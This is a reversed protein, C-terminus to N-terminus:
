STICPTSPLRQHFASTVTFNSSSSKFSKILAVRPGRRGFEHSADLDWGRIKHRVQNEDEAPILLNYLKQSGPIAWLLPPLRPEIRYDVADAVLNVLRGLDLVCGLATRHMYDRARGEHRVWLRHRGGDDAPEEIVDRAEDYVTNRWETGAFSVAAAIKLSRVVPDATLCLTAKEPGADGALCLGFEPKRQKLDYSAAAYSGHGLRKAVTAKLSAAGGAAAVGADLPNDLGARMALNSTTLALALSKMRLAVGMDGSGEVVRGTASGDIPDFGQRVVFGCRGALKSDLSSSGAKDDGAFASGLARWEFPLVAKGPLFEFRNADSPQSAHEVPM